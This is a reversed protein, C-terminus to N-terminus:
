DGTARARDRALTLATLLVVCPVNILVVNFVAGALLSCTTDVLFWALTSLAIVRRAQAGYGRRALLVGLVAFQATIAVGIPWVWARLDAVDLGLALYGDIWPPVHEVALALVPGTAAFGVMGREMWPDRPANEHVRVALAAAVLAGVVSGVLIGGLLLNM